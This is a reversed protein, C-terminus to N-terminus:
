VKYLFKSDHRFEPANAFCAVMRGQFTLVGVPTQNLLYLIPSEVLCYLAEHQWYWGSILVQVSVSRQAGAKLANSINALMKGRTAWLRGSVSVAGSRGESLEQGEPAAARRRQKWVSRGSGRQQGRCDVDPFVVSYRLISSQQQEKNNYRFVIYFLTRLIHTM